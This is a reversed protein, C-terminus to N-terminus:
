SAHSNRSLRIRRLRNADHIIQQGPNPQLM